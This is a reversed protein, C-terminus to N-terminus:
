SHFSLFICTVDGLFRATETRVSAPTSLTGCGMFKLGKVRLGSVNHSEDLFLPSRLSVCHGRVVFYLASLKGGGSSEYKELSLSGMM